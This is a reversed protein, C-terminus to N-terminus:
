RERRLDALTPCDDGLAFRACESATFGRTLSDRVIDLLEHADITFVLLDGREPTVAVHRDDVFAVGQVPSDGVPIEQVLELSPGDWIRVRGDSSATAILAGDGSMAVARLSGEHVETQSRSVRQTEVDFWHLSSSANAMLQVAALLKTGDSAYGILGIAYAGSVEDVVDWTTTSLVRVNEDNSAVLLVQSDPSFIMDAVAVRTADPEDAFLLSGSEANWVVVATGSAAAIMTGDPSWALRSPAIVFPQQPYPACGPQRDPPTSSAADWICAGDLEVIEEGTLLDRVVLPGHMMGNGEQRVFRSGAPSVGLAASQHGPLAARLVTTDLDVIFTTGDSDGDCVGHFAASGSAVRLSDAFVDGDCTDVAGVEGRARIDVLSSRSYADSVLVLGDGGTSVRGDGVGPDAGLQAGTTADWERLTGDAGTSFVTRGTPSFTAHRSRGRHGSFSAVPRGDAVDWVEIPQDGVLLLSGDPSLARVDCVAPDSAPEARLLVEGTSMEEVVVQNGAVDDYAVRRADDSLAAGCLGSGSNAALLRRNGSRRDVLETGITGQAWDCAAIVGPSGHLTRVLLYTDTVASVLGGCRGLDYREVVEGTDANMLRAGVVGM